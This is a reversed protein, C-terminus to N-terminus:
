EIFAVGEALDLELHVDLRIPRTLELSRELLRMAAPPDFRWLARRGAAALREGARQALAADPRGLEQKYRAAQELHHGLLEDPELRDLRAGLLAQLTPPVTVDGSVAEAMALMEAVFLPNGGAARAIRERLDAAIEDPILQEVDEDDLPELRLVVPWTARRDL